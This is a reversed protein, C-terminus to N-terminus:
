MQKVNFGVSVVYDGCLIWMFVMADMLIIWSQGLMSGVHKIMNAEFVNKINKTVKKAM